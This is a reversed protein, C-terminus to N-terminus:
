EKKYTKITNFMDMYKLASRPHKSHIEFVKHETSFIVTKMTIVGVEIIEKLPFETIQGTKTILSLRDKYLCLKGKATLKNHSSKIIEYLRQNEDTILPVDLGSDKEVLARAEGREWKIWDTVTKFPPEEKGDPIEFYSYENYRVKFGCACSLTDGKSTLTGFQKCKPCCYLVTELCEAPKKGKFVVPNKEQEEYANGYIDKIITKYIEEETMSAIKEPSYIQVLRGEMKGKHVFRAWRPFTLYSGTFKYTVLAVGARKVLKGVSPPVEGTVGDFSTTGEAFICINCKEKLRRFISIVTQTEQATKVRAIPSVAFKLLKSKLGMRLIHDSAVFYMMKRFSLGILLPDYNTLHNAVVIYPSHKVEINDYKFNFKHELPRHVVTWGFRYIFNHRSKGKM